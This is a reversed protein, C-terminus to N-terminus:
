YVKLMKSIFIIYGAKYSKLMGCGVAVIVFTPGSNVCFTLLTNATKQDIAGEEYLKSILKGGVPYGGILSMLLVSGICGNLGLLKMPYKLIYDFIRCIKTSFIFIAVCTFPFISPIVIEGCMILGYEISKKAVNPSFLVFIMFLFVPLAIIYTQSKRLISKLELIDM